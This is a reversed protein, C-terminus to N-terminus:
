PLTAREMALRATRLKELAGDLLLSIIRHPSATEIDTRLGLRVYENAANLKQNM